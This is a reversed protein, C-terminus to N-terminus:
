PLMTSGPLLLSDGGRYKARESGPGKGGARGGAEFQTGTSRSRKSGASQRESPSEVYVAFWEANLDAAMRQGIRVLRESLSSTSICVLLRSGAPWPGLIGHRDMYSRMDDDVKRATYRLAMERLGLLNGKRFFRQRAQEAKLPVYVKGENLRQLLEEPPLDVM